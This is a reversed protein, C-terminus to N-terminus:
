LVCRWALLSPWKLSGMGALTSSCGLGDHYDAPRYADDHDPAPAAFPLTPVTPAALFLPIQGRTAEYFQVTVAAIMDLNPM